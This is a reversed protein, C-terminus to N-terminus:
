EKMHCTSCIEVKEQLQELPKCWPYFIHGRFPRYHPCLEGKLVKALIGCDELYQITDFHGLFNREIIRDDKFLLM